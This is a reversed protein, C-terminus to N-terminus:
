QEEPLEKPLLIVAKTGKGPESYFSIGYEDGFYLKIRQNVNYIGISHSPTDKSLIESIKDKTMGVGDDEISIIFSDGMDCGTVLLHGIGEKTRIGHEIANEVLPQLILKIVYCSSLIDPINISFNLKNKYRMKQITLYSNINTIESSLRVLEDSKSISTRLLKSLAMTMEVIDNNGEIEAMWVISDLTNYLFHPNIQAQLAKIESKRKEEMTRHQDNILSSIRDMMKNFVKALEGIEDDSEINVRINLNGEHIHKMTKSLRTIPTSLRESISITLIVGACCFFLFIYFFTIGTQRKPIIEDISYIGAIKWGTKESSTVTYYRKQFHDTITFNNNHNLTIENVPEKRIGAYILQQYPNYVIDGSEDFISIYGSQGLTINECLNKIVDYNLNILLIGLPEGNSNDTIARSMSIVWRYDDAAEMQVHSSTIYPKGNSKLANQYWEQSTYDINANMSIYDKATLINGSPLFLFINAIDNRVNMVTSLQHSANEYSGGGKLYERIDPSYSVFDSINEMYSIYNDIQHNIQMVLKSTYEISNKEITRTTYYFSATFMTVIIGIVLLLMSLLINFSISKTYNKM